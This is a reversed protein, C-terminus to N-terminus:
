VWVMNNSATNIVDNIWKYRLIERQLNVTIRVFNAQLLIANYQVIYLM